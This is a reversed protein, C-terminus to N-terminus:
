VNRDHRRIATITCASQPHPTGALFVQSIGQSCAGDCGGRRVTASTTAVAAAALRHAAAAAATASAATAATATAGTAVNATAATAAAAKKVSFM